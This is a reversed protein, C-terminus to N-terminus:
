EMGSGNDSESMVLPHVSVFLTQKIQIIATKGVSLGFIYPPLDAFLSPSTTDTLQVELLDFGACVIRQYM